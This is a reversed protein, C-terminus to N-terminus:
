HIAYKAIRGASQKAEQDQSAQSAPGMAAGCLVAWSGNGGGATTFTLVLPSGAAGALGHRCWRPLRDGAGLRQVHPTTPGPPRWSRGSPGAGAAAPPWPAAICRGPGSRCLVLEHAVSCPYQMQGWVTGPASPLPPQGIRAVARHIAMASRLGATDACGCCRRVPSPSCSICSFSPGRARTLVSPGSEM